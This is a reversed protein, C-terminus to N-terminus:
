RIKLRVRDSFLRTLARIVKSCSRIAVEDGIIVPGRGLLTLGQVNWKGQVGCKM